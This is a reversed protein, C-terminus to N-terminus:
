KTMIRLEEKQILQLYNFHAHALNLLSDYRSCEEEYNSFYLRAEVMPMGKHFPSRLAHKVQTALNGELRDVLGMLQAQTFVFAEDLICEGSTRLQTSEYFSLM